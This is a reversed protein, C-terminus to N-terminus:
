WKKQEFPDKPNIESLLARIGSIEHNQAAGQPSFIVAGRAIDNSANFKNAARIGETDL